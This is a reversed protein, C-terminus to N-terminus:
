APQWGAWADDWWRRGAELEAIVREAEARTARAQDETFRGEGVRLELLEDDKLEWRGDPHVILDLELDQTDYGQAHRRFPEQFNVYWFAFDRGPGDWFVYVAYAEGPRQLMLTGHGQWRKRTGWPHPRPSPPFTFETGEALYTALLDPTDQVVRVPCHLWCHGDNLVERRVVVEDASWM